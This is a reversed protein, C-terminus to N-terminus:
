QLLSRLDAELEDAEHKLRRDTIRVIQFRAV